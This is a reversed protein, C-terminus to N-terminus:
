NEDNISLLNLACKIAMLVYGDSCESSILENIKIILANYNNLKYIHNGTGDCVMCKYKYKYKYGFVKGTGSCVSCECEDHPTTNIQNKSKAYKHYQLVDFGFLYNINDIDNVNFNPNIFCKDLIKIVNDDFLSYKNLLNIFQNLENLALNIDDCYNNNLYSVLYDYNNNLMNNLVDIVINIDTNYYANFWKNMDNNYIYLRDIVKFKNNNNTTTTNTM